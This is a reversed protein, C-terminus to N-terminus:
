IERTNYTETFMHNAHCVAIALADSADEPTPISSLRLIKQLMWQVQEKTSKGSGTVALKAQTPAYEFVPVGQKKAAVIAVGRAMGLKMASQTNKSVFQTEVAMASPSHRQMLEELGSYIALYRDSLKFKVPCRICGYDILEFKTGDFFIIGYGTILTGPDIGFIIM